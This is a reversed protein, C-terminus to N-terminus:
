IMKKPYTVIEPYYRIHGFILNEQSSYIEIIERKKRSTWKVSRKHTAIEIAHHSLWNRISLAYPYDVYYSLNSPEFTAEAARRILVHDVHKGIGLPVVVQGQYRSSILSDRIENLLTLDHSSTNGSFISRRDPYLPTNNHVRFGADIYGLHSWSTGLVDMAKEDEHVRTRELEKISSCGAAKTYWGALPTDIEESFATFVTVVKVRFSKWMLIHDCCDLVADDLHPSLVVIDRSAAMPVCLSYM